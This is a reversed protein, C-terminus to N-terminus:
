RTPKDKTRLADNEQEYFFSGWADIDKNFILRANIGKHARRSHHRKWFRHYRDEQTAYGGWAIYEDGEKLKMNHHEFATQIGNYGDYM